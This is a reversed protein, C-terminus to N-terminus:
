RLFFFGLVVAALGAAALAMGRGDHVSGRDGVVARSRRILAWGALAIPATLAMLIGGIALETSGMQDADYDTFAVLVATRVEFAAFGAFPVILLWGVAFQIRTSMPVGESTVLGDDVLVDTSDM